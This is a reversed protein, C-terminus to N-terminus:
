TLKHTIQQSYGRMNHWMVHVLKYMVNVGLSELGPYM